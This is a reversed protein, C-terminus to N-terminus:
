NLYYKRLSTKRSRGSETLDLKHKEPEKYKKKPAHIVVTIVCNIEHYSNRKGPLIYTRHLNPCIHKMKNM